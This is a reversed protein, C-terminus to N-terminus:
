ASAASVINIEENFKGLQELGDGTVIHTNEIGVVGQGPFIVKPELAVAMGAELPLDQGKALFPYEDLEIGVGHGVFRIRSDGAGMFHDAYGLDTARQVAMDYLSGSPVGPKAEKKILSQIELMAAQAALFEDPLGNIAFIRTHDSLYGRYAFVFDVLVPENEKVKRFGPGQAVVPSVGPGGTPSALYSPVSASPGAMVHGYFLEAGWLRMRTIGQHGLSRAKAEVLGALEIESIGPRLMEPVASAVEDSMRAAERILSIEYPSKVARILRIRQSIDRIEADGFVAQFNFYHNVPLVDLEMGIRQPLPVANEKLIHPITRPSKLPVTNKIPSEQVAREIDKRVMLVPDGDAPIYLHAQQSTGSFYFLDSSQLILAGDINEEALVAQLTSIRDSIEDRPTYTEPESM